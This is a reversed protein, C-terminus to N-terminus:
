TRSLTITHRSLLLSVDIEKTEFRADAKEAWVGRLTEVAAAGQTASQASVRVHVIVLTDLATRPLWRWRPAPKLMEEACCIELGKLSDELLAPYLNGLNQIISTLVSAPAALNGLYNDPPFVREWTQPVNLPIQVVERLM